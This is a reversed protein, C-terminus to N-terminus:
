IFAYGTLDANVRYCRNAPSPIPLTRYPRTAYAAVSETTSHGFQLALSRAVLKTSAMLKSPTDSVSWLGCFVVVIHLLRSM